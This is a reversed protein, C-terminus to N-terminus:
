RLLLIVLALSKILVLRAEALRVARSKNSSTATHTEVSLRWSCSYNFTVGHEM